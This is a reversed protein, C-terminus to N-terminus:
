AAAQQLQEPSIGADQARQGVQDAIGQGAAQLEGIAPILESPIGYLEALHASVERPKVMLPIADPGFRATIQELFRDITMIQEMEAARALPSVPVLKVTRNNIRPLKIKGQARRIYLLRRTLPKMLENVMRGFPSSIRRNLDSIKFSAETASVPTSGAKNLPDSFLGIKINNRMDELIMQAFDLKGPADLPELGSSGPFKTIITGPVFSITQPNITEDDSQWMGAISKEANELILEVTLNCTRIDPLTSLLPGRGWVEGAAKAWRFPIWPSSGEGIFVKDFIIAPGEQWIVEHKYQITPSDWDRYTAEIIEITRRPEDNVLNQLEQPLTADPWKTMIDKAKTPVKRFIEDSGGFPGGNVWVESLPVATFRFPAEIGGDDVHLFGTGIAMEAIAEDTESSANSDQLADFVDDRIGELDVAIDAAEVEDIDAGPKMDIWRSGDPVVGAKIRSVFDTVAHVATSDLIDDTNKQGKSKEEFMSSRNPMAYDYCEQWMVEWTERLTKAEAFNELTEKAPDQTGTGVPLAPRKTATSDLSQDAM